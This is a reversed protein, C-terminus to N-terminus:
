PVAGEYLLLLVFAFIALGILLVLVAIIGALIKWLMKLADSNAMSRSIFALKGKTKNLM